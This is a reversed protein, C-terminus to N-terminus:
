RTRDAEILADAMEIVQRAWERCARERDKNVVYDMPPPLVPAVQGILYQRLTLGSTIRPVIAPSSAGGIGGAGGARGGYAAGGATSEAGPGSAGNGGRTLYDSSKGAITGGGLDSAGSMGGMGGWDRRDNTGNM